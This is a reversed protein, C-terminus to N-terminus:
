GVKKKIVNEITRIWGRPQLMVIFTHIRICLKAAHVSVSSEVCQTMFYHWKM